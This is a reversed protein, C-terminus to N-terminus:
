ATSSRCPGAWNVGRPWSTIANKIKSGTEKIVLTPNKQVYQSMKDGPM